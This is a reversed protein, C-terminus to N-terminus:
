LGVEDAAARLGQEAAEFVDPDAPDVGPDLEYAWTIEGDRRPPRRAIVTLGKTDTLEVRRQLVVSATVRERILQLLMGPEKVSFVHVPRVEGYEGVEAVRLQAADSDWDATEVGEWPLRTAEGEAKVVVFADRTGLLWTGDDTEASALVKEGRQLGAREIVDAPAHAARGFRRSM